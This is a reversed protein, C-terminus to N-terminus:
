EMWSFVKSAVNNSERDCRILIEVILIFFFLIFSSNHFKNRILFKGSVNDLRKVSLKLMKCIEGLHKLSLALKKEGVESVHSEIDM